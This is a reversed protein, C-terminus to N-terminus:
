YKERDALKPHGRCTTQISLHAACVYQRGPKSSVRSSRTTQIPLHAFCAYERSPKPSVHGSHTTQISLYIQLEYMSDLVTFINSFIVWLIKKTVLKSVKDCMIGQYTMQDGTKLICSCQLQLIMKFSISPINQAHDMCIIVMFIILFLLSLKHIM